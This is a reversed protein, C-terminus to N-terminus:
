QGVLVPEIVADWCCLPHFQGPEVHAAEGYPVKGYATMQSAASPPFYPLPKLDMVM